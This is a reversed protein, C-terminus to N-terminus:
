AAAAKALTASQDARAVPKRGVIEAEAQLWDDVDHGHEYGRDEFLKYARLRIIEETPEQAGLDAGENKDKRM